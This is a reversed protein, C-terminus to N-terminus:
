GKARCPLTLRLALRTTSCDKQGEGRQHEDNRLVGSAVRRDYEQIPGIDETHAASRVDSRGDDVETNGAQPTSNEVAAAAVSSAWRRRQGAIFVARFVTRSGTQPPRPSFRGLTTHVGRPRGAACGCATCSRRQRMDHPGTRVSKSMARLPATRAPLLCLQTRM